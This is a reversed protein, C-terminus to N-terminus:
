EICSSHLVRSVLATGEAEGAGLAATVQRRWAKTMAKMRRPEARGSCRLVESDGLSLLPRSIEICRLCM